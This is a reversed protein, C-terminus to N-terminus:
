GASGEGCIPRPVAITIGVGREAKPRVAQAYEYTHGATPGDDTGLVLRVVEDRCSKLAAVLNDQDWTRGVYATFVVRAPGWATPKDAALWAVKTAHKWATSERSIVSWHARGASGNLRSTLRKPIFLRVTLLPTM